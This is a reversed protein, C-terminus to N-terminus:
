LYQELLEEIESIQKELSFRSKMHDRLEIAKKHKDYNEYRKVMELCEDSTLFICEKPYIQDSGPWNHVLPMLGCAIGEVIAYMFSESISSCIIYDKDEFWSPIDEVWGEFSVPIGMEKIM